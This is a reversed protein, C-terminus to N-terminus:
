LGFRIKDSSTGDRYLCPDHYFGLHPLYHRLSSHNVTLFFWVTTVPLFKLLWPAAQFPLEMTVDKPTQTLFM